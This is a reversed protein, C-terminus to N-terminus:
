TLVTYFSESKDFNLFFDIKFLIEDKTIEDWTLCCNAVFPLKIKGEIELPKSNQDTFWM